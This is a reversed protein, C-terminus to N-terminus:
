SLIARVCQNTRTLSKVMFRVFNFKLPGSSPMQFCLQIHLFVFNFKLQGSSPMQFCLQIHLFHQFVVNDGKGISNEEEELSIWLKLWMEIKKVLGVNVRPLSDLMRHIEM